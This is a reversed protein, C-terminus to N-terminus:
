IPRKMLPAHRGCDFYYPGVSQELLWMGDCPSTSILSLTLRKQFQGAIVWMLFMDRSWVSVSPPM